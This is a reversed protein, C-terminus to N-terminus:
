LALGFLLGNFIKSFLSRPRIWPSGGKQTGGIIEPIPLAVYKLNQLFMWLTSRFLLEHFINPITATPMTLSDHVNKPCWIPRMARDDKRCCLKRTFCHFGSNLLKRPFNQSHNSYRKPFKECSTKPGVVRFFIQKQRTTYFNSRSTSGGMSNYPHASYRSDETSYNKVVWTCAYLIYYLYIFSHICIIIWKM